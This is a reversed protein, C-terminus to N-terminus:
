HNWAWTAKEGHGIKAEGTLPCRMGFEVGVKAITEKVVRAVDEVIEPRAELDIEDHVWLMFAYDEGWKYGAKALEEVARVIWAKALIAGASQFLTNLASHAGRPRLRRGDLGRVYGFKKFREQVDKILTAFAKNAKMFSMRAKRGIRRLQEEDLGSGNPLEEAAISGLKVDGAGYVMAYIFTKATARKLLGFAKRNEEHIDGHLVLELFKGGDYRALYHGMVRLEIGSMDVGAFSWGLVTTTFLDRCEFGFGGKLGYLTNKEADKEVSPVQGLNPKNHAARGTITGCTNIRGHICGDSKYAKTWAQEGNEVMALTKTVVFYDKFAQKVDAPIVTTPIGELIKEDFKFSGDPTTETPRWGYKTRLREVCQSRSGPNFDVWDFSCYESGEDWHILPPGIYPKLEKGTKESFKRITIPALPPLGWAEIEERATWKTVRTRSVKFEKPRKRKRGGDELTEYVPLPYPKIFKRLVSVCAEQTNQLVGVLEYAAKINFGVGRKEIQRVINWVAQELDIYQRTPNGYERIKKWLKITVVGDQKCYAHMMPNWNLWPDEGAAKMRESYDDKPCGLREGYHGLKNGIRAPGTLQEHFPFADCRSADNPFTSQALVLTDTVGKPAFEPYLMQIFPIDFWIINHGIVMDAAQILSVAKDIEEKDPGYVDVHETAVDGICICHIVPNTVDLLGNTEIDFVLGESFDGM